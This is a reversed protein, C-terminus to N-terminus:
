NIWCLRCGIGFEHNNHVSLSGDGIINWFCTWTDSKSVFAIEFINKVVMEDRLVDQSRSTLLMKCGQLHDEFAVGIDLLGLQKWVNDIIILFKKENKLRHRSELAREKFGDKYFVIDLREAIEKQIKELNPSQSVMVEVADCFLKAHLAEGAVAKVLTTKSIGAIGYVGTSRIEDNGLAQLIGSKTSSRTDFEM